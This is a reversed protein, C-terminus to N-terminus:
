APVPAKLSKLYKKKEYMRQDAREFISNFDGDRGARFVDLGASVVVGGERVHEEMMKDFERMLEIRQMYDDGELVAVFEDGGIRYVASHQFSKCIIECGSIIYKDGEEHGLNDNIQKLGNVDFVVIGLEKLQLTDIRMDVDAKMEQFAQKNKVGTLPDRYAILKASGLEKSHYLKEGQVVFTHIICGAIICGMTYFPVNPELAQFFIFAAMILGSIGISAHNMKAIGEEQRHAEMMSYFTTFLYLIVQSILTIIRGFGTHYVGNEDYSFVIPAIFNILLAVVEFTVIAWAGYTLLQTFRNNRKLYEIVFKTWLLVSWVMSLFFLMTDIYALPRIGLASLTGWLIDSVYFVLVSCFFVRYSRMEPSLKSTNGPLLFEINIICHLVLALLGIVSYFM